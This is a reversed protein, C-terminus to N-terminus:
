GSKALENLPNRHSRTKQNRGNVQQCKACIPWLADAVSIEPRLVYVHVHVQHLQPQTQLPLKLRSGHAVGM